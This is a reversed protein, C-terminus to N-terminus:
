LEWKGTKNGSEDLTLNGDSAQNGIATLTIDFTPPTATNDVAPSLAATYNGSIRAPEAIGLPALTTAYVRNELLFQQQRNALDLMYQQAASRNARRVYEDYTPLAIMAIIAVIVGVIMLEVLTFGRSFSEKM